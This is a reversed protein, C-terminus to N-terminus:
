RLVILDTFFSTNSFFTIELPRMDECAFDKYFAPVRAEPRFTELFPSELVDPDREFANDFAEAAARPDKCATVLGKGFEPLGWSSDIKGATELDAIALDYNATNWVAVGRLFYFRSNMVDRDILTTLDGVTAPWLHDFAEKAAKLSLLSWADMDWKMAHPLGLNYLRQNILEIGYTDEQQLLLEALGQYGVIVDIPNSSALRLVYDTARALRPATPARIYYAQIGKERLAGTYGIFQNDETESTGAGITVTKFDFTNDKLRRPLWPVNKGLDDEVEEPSFGKCECDGGTWTALLYSISPDYEKAKFLDAIGERMGEWLAAERSAPGVAKDLIERIQDQNNPGVPLLAETNECYPKDSPGGFIRFGVSSDGVNPLFMSIRNTAEALRTSGDYELQMRASTDLVIATRAPETGEVQLIKPRFPGIRSGRFEIYQIQITVIRPARKSEDTYSGSCRHPLDPELKGYGDSVSIWCKYEPDGAISQDDRLVEMRISEGPDISESSLYLTFDEIDLPPLPTPTASPTAAQCAVLFVVSSAIWQLLRFAIRPTSDSQKSTRTLNTVLSM